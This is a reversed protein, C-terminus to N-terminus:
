SLRYSKKRIFRFQLVVFGAAIFCTVIIIWVPLLAVIRVVGAVLFMLIMTFFAIISNAGKQQMERSRTFPLENTQFIIGLLIIIINCFAGLIILPFLSLGWLVVAFVTVFFYVPLLFKILLAKIAGTLLQGNEKLPIIRYIWSAEPTDTYPLQMIAANASFGCMVIFFYKSLEKTNQISAIINNFDPKLIAFAFVIMVGFYPYVSQKFKRDRGTTTIAFDMAAKEFVSICFFKGIRSVFMKPTTSKQSVTVTESQGEALINEFGKSLLRVLLIAGAIPVLVGPLSLAAFDPTIEKFLSLKVFAALWAPPALYTWWSVTLSINKLIEVDMMRPIIQYSGFMIIAIIIQTYSIFDKFREGNVVKSLLLYIFTTLLLTLWTCLEVAIFYAITSSVGFRLAVFVGGTLSLALAISGIYIQIHILRVLLLTRNSVPRPLLIYNDRQDFLVTTFESLLTMTLSVMIVSFLIVLSMALDGVSFAAIGFLLGFVAFTFLQYIFTQKKKGSTQFSTPATRFDVTLKTRLLIEFQDSDAGLWGAPYKLLLIIFFVLNKM